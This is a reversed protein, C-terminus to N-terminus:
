ALSSKDVTSLFEVVNKVSQHDSLSASLITDDTAVILEGEKKLMFLPRDTFNIVMNNRSELFHVDGKSANGNKDKELLEYYSLWSGIDNWGFDGAVSFIPLETKEMVAYDISISRISSYLEPDINKYDQILEIKELIDPNLKKFENVMIDKKFLFIGGNWLYEGSEFFKTAKLLDPKEEFSSVGFINEAVPESKKIYGYGTEPRNPTIGITGINTRNSDIYSVGKMVTERFKEPNAIYHDAPLVLINDSDSWKKEIYKITLAICAATNRASPEFIVDVADYKETDKLIPEKQKISSVVVVRNSIPLIRDITEQLLTKESFLALSQKAKNSRSLPWFRKGSGGAMIITILAM